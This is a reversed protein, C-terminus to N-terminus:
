AYRQLKWSEVRCLMSPGGSRGRLKSNRSLLRSRIWHGGSPSSSGKSLALVDASSNRQGLEAVLLLSTYVYGMRQEM